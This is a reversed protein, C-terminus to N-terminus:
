KKVTKSASTKAVTTYGSKKETVTVTLKKGKASKPVTYSAKTAGKVTAGGVKWQYSLTAGSTHSGVAATVKHGAAVTGKITPQSLKLVGAVKATGTASVNGAKDTARFKVTVPASSTVRATTTYTKWTTGGNVSYQVSKVGSLKDSAQLTLKGGSTSTAKVTPKTGDIKITLTKLGPKANDASAAV